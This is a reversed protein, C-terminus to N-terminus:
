NTEMVGIDGSRVFKTLDYTVSVLRGINKAGMSELDDASLELHYTPNTWNMGELLNVGIQKEEGHYHGAPLVVEPEIKVDDHVIFQVPRTRIKDAM